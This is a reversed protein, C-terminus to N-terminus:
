ERAGERAGPGRRVSGALSAPRAPPRRRISAALSRTPAPPEPEPAAADAGFDAVVVVPAGGTVGGAIGNDLLFDGLRDTFDDAGGRIEGIPGEALGLLGAAQGDNLTFADPDEERLLERAMGDM